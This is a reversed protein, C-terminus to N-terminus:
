DLEYNVFHNWEDIADEAAQQHKTAADNQEEIFDQICEKYREVDDNFSDVEYQSTFEYPKYPKSCSHSPTFMDALVPLSLFCM